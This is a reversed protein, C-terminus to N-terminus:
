YKKGSIHGYIDEAGEEDTFWANMAVHFNGDHIPIKKESTPAMTNTPPFSVTPAPTPACLTNTCSVCSDTKGYSITGSACATCASGNYYEDV